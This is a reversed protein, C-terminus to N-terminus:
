AGTRCNASAPAKKNRMAWGIEKTVKQLNNQQANVLALVGPGVTSSQVSYCTLVLKAKDNFDIRWLVGLAAQKAPLLDFAQVDVLVDMVNATKPNATIMVGQLPPMGLEETLTNSVASRVVQGLPAVWKDHSLVLLSDNPQRVVLANIDLTEPVTVSSIMYAMPTSGRVPQKASVMSPSKLDYHMTATGACGALLTVGLVISVLPWAKM